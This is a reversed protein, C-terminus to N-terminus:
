RDAGDRELNLEAGSIEVRPLVLSGTLLHGLSFQVTAKQVNLMRGDGAWQAGKMNLGEVTVTPNWSWLHVSLNGDISTPHGSKASIMRAVPGRLKNWDLLSVVLILVVCLAAVSVLVWKFIKHRRWFDSATM